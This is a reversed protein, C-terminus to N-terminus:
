LSKDDTWDAPPTPDIGLAVLQALMVDQERRHQAFLELYERGKADNWEDVWDTDQWAESRYRYVRRAESAAQWQPSDVPWARKAIAVGIMETLFTDGAMLSASLSRCAERVGLRELRGTGCGKSAAIYNPLAISAIAGVIAIITDPLPVEGTSAVAEGLRATLTTYYSDVRESRGVAALAADLAAEDASEYARALAGLSGLGNAADLKRLRAEIPEPDCRETDTCIQVHLWTLEPREPANATARAILALADAPAERASFLAAAALSNPDSRNQLVEVARSQLRQMKATERELSYGCGTAGVLLLLAVGTRVAGSM